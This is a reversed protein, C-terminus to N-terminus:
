LVVPINKEGHIRKYIYWQYWDLWHVGADKSYYPDKGQLVGAIKKTWSLVVYDRRNVITKWPPPGKRQEHMTVLYYSTGEKKPPATSINYKKGYFRPTFRQYYAILHAVLEGEPDGKIMPISVYEDLDHLTIVSEIIEGEAHRLSHQVVTQLLFNYYNSGIFFVLFALMAVKLVPLAHRLYRQTFELLFKVSFALLTTFVPILIYWYRLVQAWSTCVILYLCIFQGLLFLVFALEKRSNRQVLRVAIGLFLFLCLTLFSAAIYPSTTVQFLEKFIWKSNNLLLELTIPSVGYGSSKSAYFVQTTTYVFLALLPLGVLLKHWVFRKLVLAFYFLLIWAMVAINIEKSFSSGAYALLLTGYIQLLRPVIHQSKEQQVILQAIAWNCLGLFFVTNLEQPGLRSVPSNPFFLWLYVLFALSLLSSSVPVAISETSPNKEQQPKFSLFALAFSLLAGFHLAWRALHHLWAAPGFLKWTFMNYLDFFPRYRGNGFELFAMNFWKFFRKSNDLFEVYYCMGLDDVLAFPTTLSYYLVPVLLLSPLFFLVYPVM